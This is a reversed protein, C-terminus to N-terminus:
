LQSTDSFIKRLSPPAMLLEQEDAISPGFQEPLSSELSEMGTPMESIQEMKSKHLENQSEKKGSL